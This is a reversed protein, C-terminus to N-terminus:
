TLLLLVRRVFRALGQEQANHALGTAWCSGTEQIICEEHANFQGERAVVALLVLALLGNQHWFGNISGPSIWWASRWLWSM